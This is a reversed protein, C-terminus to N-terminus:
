RDSREEAFKAALAEVRGLDLRSRTPDSAVIPGDGLRALVPAVSEERMAGAILAFARGAGERWFVAGGAAGLGIATIVIAGEIPPPGALEAAPEAVIWRPAGRAAIATIPRAGRYAALRALGEHPDPPATDEDERLALSARYGRDADADRGDLEALLAWLATVEADLPAAAQARTLAPIAEGPAGSAIAERAAAVAAAYELAEERRPARAGIARTAAERLEAPSFPKFLADAVGLRLLEVLVRPSLLVGTVVIPLLPYRRRMWRAEDLVGGSGSREDVIALEIAGADLLAEAEHVSSASEVAWGEACLVRDMMARGPADPEAILVRRSM